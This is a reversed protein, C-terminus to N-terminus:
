PGPCDLVEGAQGGGVLHEFRDLGFGCAHGLRRLIPEHAGHALVQGAADLAALLDRGGLLRLLEDSGRDLSTGFASGARGRVGLLPRGKAAATTGPTTWAGPVPPAVTPVIAAGGAVPHLSRKEVANRGQPHM